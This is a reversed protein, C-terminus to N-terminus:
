QSLTSKTVYFAQKTVLCPTGEETGERQRQSGPRSEAEAGHAKFRLIVRIWYNQLCIMEMLHFLIEILKININFSM